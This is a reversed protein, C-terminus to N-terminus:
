IDLTKFQWTQVWCDTQIERQITPAKGTTLNQLMRFFLPCSLGGQYKLSDGLGLLFSNIDVYVGLLCEVIEKESDLDWLVLYHTFTVSLHGKCVIFMVFFSM